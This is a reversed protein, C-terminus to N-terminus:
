SCLFQSSQIGYEEEGCMCVSSTHLALRFRFGFIAAPPTVQFNENKWTVVACRPQLNVREKCKQGHCLSNCMYWRSDPDLRPMM